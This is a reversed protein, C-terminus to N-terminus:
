FFGKIAKAGKLGKVAKIGTAVKGAGVFGAGFEVGRRLWSPMDQYYQVWSNAGSNNKTQIIQWKKENVLLPTLQNIQKSQLDINNARAVSELAAKALYAANSRNVEVQSWMQAVQAAFQQPLHKYNWSDIKNQLELNLRTQRQVDTQAELSMNQLRVQRITDNWVSQQLAHQQQQLAAKSFKDKADAVLADIEKLNRLSRSQNDISKGRADENLNQIQAKQMAVQGIANGAAIFSGSPDYSELHPTTLQPVNAGAAPSHSLGTGGQQSMMLNPNLGAARLRQVQASPTNYENNQQWMDYNWQLQKNFMAMQNANNMKAIAVNAQNTSDNSHSGLLGGLLSTGAGILAGGIIPDM